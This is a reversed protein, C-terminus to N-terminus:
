HQYQSRQPPELQIIQQRRQGDKFGRNLNHRRILNHARKVEEIESQVRIFQSLSSSEFRVIEHRTNEGAEQETKRLRQGLEFGALYPGTFILQKANEFKRGISELM